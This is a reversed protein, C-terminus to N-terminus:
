IHANRQTPTHTYAIYYTCLKAAGIIQLSRGIQINIYMYLIPSPNKKSRKQSQQKANRAACSTRKTRNKLPVNQSSEWTYKANHKAASDAYILFVYSDIRSTSKRQKAYVTQREDTKRFRNKGFVCFSDNNQIFM